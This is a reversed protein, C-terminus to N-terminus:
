RLVIVPARSELEAGGVRLWNCHCRFTGPRSSFIARANFSADSTMTMTM